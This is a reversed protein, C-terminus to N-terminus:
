VMCWVNRLIVSYSPSFFYRNQWSHWTKLFSVQSFSAPSHWSMSDKYILPTPSATSADLKTLAVTFCTTSLPACGVFAQSLITWCCVGWQLRQPGLSPERTCCPVLSPHPNTPHCPLEHPLWARTVRCTVGGAKISSQESIQVLIFACHRVKLIKLLQHIPLHCAPNCNVEFNM